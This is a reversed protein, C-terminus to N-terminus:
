QPVQFFVKMASGAKNKCWKHALTCQRCWSLFCSLDYVQTITNFLKYIQGQQRKWTTVATPARARRPHAVISCCNPNTLAKSLGSDLHCGDLVAQKWTVKNMIRNNDFFSTQLGKAGLEIQPLTRGLSVNQWLLKIRLISSSTRVHLRWMQMLWGSSLLPDKFYRSIFGMSLTELECRHVANSHNVLPVRFRREVITEASNQGSSLAKSFFVHFKPCWSLM